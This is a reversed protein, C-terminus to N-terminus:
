KIRNYKFNDSYSKIKFKNDKAPIVIYDLKNKKAYEIAQELNDFKLQIQKKTNDSKRWGMLPEFGLKNEKPFQLIWSKTNRFGSQMATKSPKFIKVKM